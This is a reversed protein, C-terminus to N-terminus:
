KQGIQNFCVTIIHKISYPLNFVPRIKTFIKIFFLLSVCCNSCSIENYIYNLIHRSMTVFMTVFKLSLTVNLM